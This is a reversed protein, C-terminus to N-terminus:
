WLSLERTVTSISLYRGLRATGRTREQDFGRGRHFDLQARDLRRFASTTCGSFTEVGEGQGKDIIGLADSSNGEVSGLRHM